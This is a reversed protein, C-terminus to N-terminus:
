KHDEPSVYRSWTGTEMDLREHPYFRNKYSMSKNDRIYYGLYYYLAGMKKAEEIERLISLIGPSYRAASDRYVFYVSSLARSSRDLFGVAALTDGLYYESQFAPCSMRYFSSMFDDKDSTRGFRSLSHEQYVEFVEDRYQLPSFALELDSGNKLVRKQSRSPTFDKVPIRLPVCEQCGPCDPKFYYYGFKRWGEELLVDLEEQAVRAAFFYSYRLMRDPLYPCEQLESLTTEKIVIM